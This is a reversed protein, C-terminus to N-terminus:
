SLRAIAQEAWEADKRAGLRRFIALAAELQERAAAPEGQRRHLEGYVHLLRGEAYPYGMGRAMHLGEDLSRQAESWCGQAMAVRAQVRLADVVVTRMQAAQARSIADACVREATGVDGLELHAEALIPLFLAEFYPEVNHFEVAPELRARAADPRGARLDLEALGWELRLGMSDSAGRSEELYRSAEDWKGEALCLHALWAFSHDTAWSPGIQRSMAVAQEGDARAQAWAGTHFALLGRFALATSTEPRNGAQEGIALAREAYQGSRDFEGRDDSIMALIIFASWLSWLMKVHGAAEALEIAEELASISEEVRGLWFLAVGRQQEADVLSGADHATRAVAAAREAAALRDAESGTMALLEGLAAYLGALGASPGDAELSPLLPQIRELGEQPTLRSTHLRGIQALTRRLEETAGAGQFTAAAQELVELAAEFHAETYLLAGLKERVRAADQVRGLRDLREVLDRYYSKATDNAHQAAAKDGARELYLVARDQEGARVYHYALLEVPAEGPERELAEAIRRHLATRRAAGVEGELVERILDHAFQYGGDDEVLLRARGAAELAVLVAHEEQESADILLSPRVVRGIVAAVSLVERTGAPLVAVRQRIGQAVDWPVAEVDGEGGDGQRLLQACSVVFFPVGGTRQAVRAELGVREGAGGELLVGLLQGVEPASLPALPRQAALGAQALDAVAMALPDPAQVETDRYAGIIRLPPGEAARVLTALLELADVGAWQLDDLVLLTGASGAVNALFRGVAKDMLRREQDPPLTWGPLPEIPGGALEPLLRVLWACGRLDSRLEATSRRALYGDLAELLPAFPAQGNRRQCGGQLVCWGREEARAAERLLHSKGIGPEGALLLLPPGFGDLHRELLAVEQVRGVLPPLPERRRVPAVHRVPLEDAPEASEGGAQRALTTFAVRASEDLGLADALRRVTDRYPQRGDKELYSLGRVSLGACEALEEQTLGAAVRHRRLAEGFTTARDTEV